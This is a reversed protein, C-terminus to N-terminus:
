VMEQFKLAIYVVHATLLMQGVAIAFDETLYDERGYLLLAIQRWLSRQVNWLGCGQQLSPVSQGAFFNNIQSSLQWTTAGEQEQSFSYKRRKRKKESLQMWWGPLSYLLCRGPSHLLMRVIGRWNGAPWSRPQSAGWLSTIFLGPRQELDRM